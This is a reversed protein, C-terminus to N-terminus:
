WKSRKITIYTPKLMPESRKRSLQRTCGRNAGDGDPYDQVLAHPPLTVKHVIRSKCVIDFEIPRNCTNQFYYNWRTGSVSYPTCRLRRGEVPDSVIDCSERLDQTEVPENVHKACASDAPSLPQGTPTDRESIFRQMTRAEADSPVVQCLDSMEIHEICLIKGETLHIRATGRKLFMDYEPLQYSIQAFLTVDAPQQIGRLARYYKASGPVYPTNRSLKVATIAAEVTAALETDKLLRSPNVECM